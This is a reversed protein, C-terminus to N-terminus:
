RSKCPTELYRAAQCSHEGLNTVSPKKSRYSVFKNIHAFMTWFWYIVKSRQSFVAQRCAGYEIASSSCYLPSLVTLEVSLLLTYCSTFAWKLRRCGGMFSICFHGFLKENTESNIFLGDVVLYERSCWSGKFIVTIYKVHIVGCWCFCYTYTFNTAACRM